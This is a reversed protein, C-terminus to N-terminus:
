KVGLNQSGHVWFLVREPQAEILVTIILISLNNLLM